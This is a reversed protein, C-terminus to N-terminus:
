EEKEFNAWAEDRQAETIDTELLKEIAEVRPIGSKTWLKKDKQKPDEKIMAAIAWVIKQEPTSQDLVEDPTLTVTETVGEREILQSELQAIEEPGLGYSQPTRGKELVQFGPSGDPRTRPRRLTEKFVREM